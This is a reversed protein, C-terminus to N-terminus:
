FFYFFKWLFVTSDMLAHKTTVTQKTCINWWLLVHWMTSQILRLLFPKSRKSNKGAFMCLCIYFYSQLLLYWQIRQLWREYKGLASLTEDLTHICWARRRAQGKTKLHSAKATAKTNFLEYYLYSNTWM